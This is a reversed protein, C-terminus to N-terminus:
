GPTLRRRARAARWMVDLLAARPGRPQEMRLLSRVCWLQTEATHSPAGHVDDHELLDLRRVHDRLRRTEGTPVIEDRLSAAYHVPIDLAALQDDGLAFDAMDGLVRGPASGTLHALTDVTIRPVRAQWRADTFFDHVPAGVTIVGRVRPDDLACRMAMHGSFSLAMAYTRDTRARDGVADMIGSLMSPSKVDYPLTNEGVGPMETVVAAVGLRRFRLLAPVWQEKVTVIGGTILLLPLPRATSLGASWCRVTGGPLEVDLRELGPAKHRRWQELTRVCRKAARRRGPGDVFPFRAMAFHRSAELWRGQEAFGEGARSWEAVWTGPGDGDDSVIRALVDRYGEVRQGRAHVEVYRKLEAVDNM